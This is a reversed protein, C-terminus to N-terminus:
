EDLPSWHPSMGTTGSSFLVYAPDTTSVKRSSTTDAIVPELNNLDIILPNEVGAAVLLNALHHKHTAETVFVTSQTMQILGQLSSPPFDLAVPVFAAGSLLTALIGIVQNPGTPLFLQVLPTTGDVSIYQQLVSAAVCVQTWLGMYSISHPKGAVYYTIANRSPYTLAGYKVLHELRQAHPLQTDTLNTLAPM